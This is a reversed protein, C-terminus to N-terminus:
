NELLRAPPKSPLGMVLRPYTLSIVRDVQISVIGLIDFLLFRVPDIDGNWISFDLQCGKSVKLYSPIMM